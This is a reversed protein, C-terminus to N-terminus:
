ITFKTLITTFMDDVINFQKRSHVYRLDLVQQKLNFVEMLENVKENFMQVHSKKTNNLSAHKPADHKSLKCQYHQEIEFDFMYRRHDNFM